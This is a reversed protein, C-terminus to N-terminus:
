LDKRKEFGEFGVSAFPAATHEQAPRDVVCRAGIQGDVAGSVLRVAGALCITPGPAAKRARFVRSCLIRGDM